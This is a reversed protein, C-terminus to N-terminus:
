IKINRPFVASLYKGTVRHYSNPKFGLQFPYILRFTQKGNGFTVELNPTLYKSAGLMEARQIHYFYVGFINFTIIYLM